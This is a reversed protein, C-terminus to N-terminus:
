EGAKLLKCLLLSFITTLLSSIFLLPILSINITSNFTNRLTLASIPLVCLSSINLVLYKALEKGVKKCKSLEGVIKIAIPTNAPGLGLLNCTISTNIYELVEVNVNFIKSSIPSILKSIKNVVGSKIAIKFMGNYIVLMSGIKILNNIVNFPVLFLNDVIYKINNNFIGFVISFLIIFTWIKNM